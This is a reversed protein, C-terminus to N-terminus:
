VSIILPSVAIAEIGNDSIYDGVCRVAKRLINLSGNIDANILKGTATKFLGRKIRKGLYVEHKCIEENDLFSCKSTYSEENVIVNIGELKAKYELMQILKTHPINVFNQNNKKGINIEQKWEQNNGIVLTNINNSVLHNIIYRSAKHMYDDIKNNRKNTIRRIRKSTVNKEENGKNLKSSYEAVKKNYYQNISKLPHGNIIYPKLVNSSVAALNNLGLDISCYRNNNEKLVKEQKDYVIEIVYSNLRPIIRVCRLNNAKNIFPIRINTKSLKIFGKGLDIKSIAGKEYECVFRGKAKNLYKPIKPRGLYKSTNKSYDKISKFFSKWNHDLMMLTQNSVRSPLSTYDIQQEKILIKNISYYNLYNAHDVLGDKKDKSTKIFEQRVLYNAYNYLNKSLFCLKDCESYFESNYKVIHKEVLNM